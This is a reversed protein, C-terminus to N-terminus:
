LLMPAGNRRAYNDDRRDAGSPSQKQSTCATCLYPLSSRAPAAVLVCRSCRRRLASHLMKTRRTPCLLDSRHQPNVWLVASLLCPPVVVSPLLRALWPWTGPRDCPIRASM